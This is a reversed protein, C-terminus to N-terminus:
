KRQMVFQQIEILQFPKYPISRELSYKVRNKAGKKLRAAQARFEEWLLLYKPM